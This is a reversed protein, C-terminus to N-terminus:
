VAAAFTWWATVGRMPKVVARSVHATAAPASSVKTSRLFMVRTVSRAVAWRIM